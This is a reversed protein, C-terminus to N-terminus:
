IKREEFGLLYNLRVLANVISEHFFKRVIEYTQAIM